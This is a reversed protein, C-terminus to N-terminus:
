KCEKVHVVGSLGAGNTSISKKKGNYSKPKKTL